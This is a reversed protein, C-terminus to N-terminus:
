RRRSRVKSTIVSRKLLIFIEDSLAVVSLCFITPLIISVYTSADVFIDTMTM